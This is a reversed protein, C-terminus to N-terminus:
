LKGGCSNLAQVAQQMPETVAQPTLSSSNYIIAIAGAPDGKIPERVAAAADGRFWLAEGNTGTLRTFKNSIQLRNLFASATESIPLPQAMIGYVSTVSAGSNPNHDSVAYIVSPDFNYQLNGTTTLSAM